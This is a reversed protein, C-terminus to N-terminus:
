PMDKNLSRSRGSTKYNELLASLELAVQKNEKFVNSQELNGQKAKRKLRAMSLSRGDGHHRPARSCGAQIDSRTEVENKQESPLKSYLKEITLRKCNTIVKGKRENQDFCAGVCFITNRRM